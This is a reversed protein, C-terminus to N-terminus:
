NIALTLDMPEIAYHKGKEGYCSKMTDEDETVTIRKACDVCLGYGKDRNWWQRGRTPNGCCSCILKKPKM